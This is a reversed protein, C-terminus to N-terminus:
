SVIKLFSHGNEFFSPIYSAHLHFNPNSMNDNPDLDFHGHKFYFLSM